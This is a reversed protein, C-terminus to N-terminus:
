TGDSGYSQQTYGRRMASVNWTVLRELHTLRALDLIMLAPLSRSTSPGGQPTRM